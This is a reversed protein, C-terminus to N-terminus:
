EAVEQAAARDYTEDTVYSLEGFGTLTYGILQAFQERDAPQFPLVALDNMNFGGRDLLFEVIANKKFRTRGHEDKFVPQVPHKLTSEISPRDAQIKKLDAILEEKTGKHRNIVNIAGAPMSRGFIATLEQQTIKSM